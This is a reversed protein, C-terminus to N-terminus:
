YGGSITLIRATVPKGFKVCLSNKLPNFGIEGNEVGVWHEHTKGNEDVRAFKVPTRKKIGKISKIDKSEVTCSRGTLYNCATNWTVTCDNDIVKCDIMRGVTILAQADEPEIGLCWMFTLICCSNEKIQYLKDNPFQNYLEEALTQPNKM